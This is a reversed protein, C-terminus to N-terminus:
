WVVPQGSNAESWDIRAQEHAQQEGIGLVRLWHGALNDGTLRRLGIYSTTLRPNIEVVVDDAGDEAHGLIVDIGIYGHLPAAAARAARALRQARQRLPPPLPASGGEYTLRDDTRLRQFAGPTLLTRDKGCLLAISAPTGPHYPQVIFDSGPLEAHAARVAASWRESERVLWTAQAGAGVRPKLVRPFPLDRPAEDLLWSSITPVGHARLTEALRLKDAVRRVDGPQCGLLQAGADRAWQSRTALLDATDPAIILAHDATRAVARFAAPEDDPRCRHCHDGLAEPCNGDLLTVVQVDPVRQFDAAVATLMAWGERRLSRPAADGLGGASVLEYIFIRMRRWDRENISV